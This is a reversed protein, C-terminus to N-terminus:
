LIYEINYVTIQEIIKPLKDSVYEIKVDDKIADLINADIQEQCCEFYQKDFDQGLNGIKQLAKYADIDRQTTIDSKLNLTNDLIAAILLKCLNVDLVDLKNSNLFKEYIITAVSGIFEINSEVNKEAWYKEFGTHHDIIEVINSRNVINDFFDPNSLDIVIFKDDKNPRYDTVVEFGLDKILSCVSTNITASSAFITKQGLVNLLKAYAIGSAYADIDIYKEGSSIVIM